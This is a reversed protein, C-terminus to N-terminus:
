GFVAKLRNLADSLMARPSAINMRQFGTGEMGFMTGSDLWLKADNVIRDDLEKQSLGYDSFDLWLLYTGQTQVLQVRPLHEDIFCRAFAINGSLYVKLADLWQAGNAYASRCAALGLTNPQSYGARDIEVKFKRRLEANKVIINSVQLGALNFTKSPATAVLAREDLLGFCTHMHGSWVFDCHIEDSVVIVGHATCIESVQLLETKTWVRGVPNHPSCLLFLKIDNETIKQEFDAFDIHYVGDSYVLPNSVIRRENARIVESFPYYVPTQILISDGIDTFANVAMALAFVVGPTQLVDCAGFVYRFRTEFWGRLADYYDQGAETYGFIGHSVAKQLDALIEQPASFDMDAVWMPLLGDPQGREAAFDWKLSNTGRRDIIEDFNYDM